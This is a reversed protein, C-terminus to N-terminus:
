LDEETERLAAPDSEWFISGDAWMLTRIYARNDHERAPSGDIIVRDGVEVSTYSWGQRRLQTAGAAEMEWISTEGDQEVSIYLRAHPNEYWVETVVGELMVRAETDYVAPFSHHAQVAAGVFLSLASIVAGIPELIARAKRRTDNNRRM